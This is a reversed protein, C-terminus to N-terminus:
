LYKVQLHRLKGTGKWLSISRGASSDAKIKVQCEFDMDDMLAQVGLSKSAGEIIAYFGAEGSSLAGTKQTSSWTKLLHKGLNLFGCSKSKRTGPCGAWHRDVLVEMFEVPKQNEYYLEAEPVHVLYRSLHKLKLSSEETPAAMSRCSEKTAFQLDPTDAGLSTATAAMGRFEITRMKNEIPM